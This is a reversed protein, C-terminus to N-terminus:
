FDLHSLENNLSQIKAEIQALKNNSGANGSSYGLTWEPLDTESSFTESKLNLIRQDLQDLSEEWGADWAFLKEHNFPMRPKLLFILMIGLVTAAATALLYRPKVIQISPLSDLIPQIYKAYLSKRSPARSILKEYTIPEIQEVPLRHLLMKSTQLLAMEARCNECSKVHSEFAQTDHPALEDYLYLIGQDTFQECFMPLKEWIV